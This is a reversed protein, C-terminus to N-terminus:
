LDLVPLRCFPDRLKAFVLRIVADQYQLGVHGGAVTALGPAESADLIGGEVISKEHAELADAFLDRTYGSGGTGRRTSFSPGTRRDSTPLLGHTIWDARRAHFDIRRRCRRSSFSHERRQSPMWPRLAAAPLSRADSNVAIADMGLSEYNVLPSFEGALMLERAAERFAGGLRVSRALTPGVCLRPPQARPQRQRRDACGRRAAAGIKPRSRLPVVGAQTEDISLQVIPIDAQPFYTCSARVMDRSRPGLSDDLVVHVPALLSQVRARSRPIARRRTSCRSLARASLRRLRSDHPTAAHGHGPARFSVLARLDCLIARRGRPREDSAGGRRRGRM